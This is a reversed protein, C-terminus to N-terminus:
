VSGFFIYFKSTLTSSDGSREVSFDGGHTTFDVANATSKWVDSDASNERWNFTANTGLAPDNPCSKKLPDCDTSTQANSVAFLSLLCGALTLISHRAM